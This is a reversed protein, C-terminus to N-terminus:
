KNNLQQRYVKSAVKDGVEQAEVKSYRKGYERQYKKPVAKGEYRKAVKKSLANFGIKGGKKYSIKNNVKEVKLNTKPVDKIFQLNFADIVGGNKMVKSDSVYYLDGEYEFGIAEQGWKKAWRRVKSIVSKENKKWDNSKAFVSVKVIDEEIIKGSTSKYGGDTETETYGGFKNAVFREVEDVRKDLEAKSITDGVNSTSPVYIVFNKDFKFEGSLEGGKAYDINKILHNGLVVTSTPDTRLKLPNTKEVKGNYKKGDKTTVTVNKGVKLEGGKAFRGQEEYWEQLDDEGYQDAFDEDDYRLQYFEDKASQPISGSKAFDLRHKLIEKNQRIKRDIRFRELDTLANTRDMKLQQIEKEIMEKPVRLNIEGGKALYDDKTKEFKRVAQEKTFADFVRGKPKGKYAVNWMTSGGVRQVSIDNETYIPDNTTFGRLKGGKAYEENYFSAIIKKATEFDDDRYEEIPYYYKLIFRGEGIAIGYPKETGLSNTNKPNFLKRMKPKTPFNSKFMDKSRLQQYLDSYIIEDIEGGKAFPLPENRKIEVNKKISKMNKEIEM